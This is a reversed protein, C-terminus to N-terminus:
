LQDTIPDQSTKLMGYLLDTYKWFADNGKIQSICESAIAKEFANQHLEVLPYHRFVWAVKGGYEEVIKKLTAHHSKCYPCEFDSYEIIVIDADPSGIIHDKESVQPAKGTYNSEMTGALISDIEAKFSEYPKAGRIETKTGNKAIIINYPTGADGESTGDTSSFVSSYIEKYFTEKDFENMCSDFASKKVGVQESLTKPEQTKNGTGMVLMGLFILFGAIIIAIPLSIKQKTENNEM